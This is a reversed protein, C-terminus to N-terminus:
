VTPAQITEELYQGSELGVMVSPTLFDTVFGDVGFRRLEAFQAIENLNAGHVFLEKGSEHLTDVFWRNKKHSPTLVVAIDEKDAVFAAVEEFTDESAYLTFIISRFPYVSKITDYMEKNYFAPIVRDLLDPNMTNAIDVLSQYYAAVEEQTMDYAKTDPILYMDENILMTRYIDEIFASQFRNRVKHAAWTASDPAGDDYGAFAWDHNAALRGDSTQNFDVEFLRHGLDYNQVITDVNNIYTYLRYEEDRLAGGAHAVLKNAQNKWEHTNLDAPEAMVGSSQLSFNKNVVTTLFDPRIFYQNEHLVFCDPLDFTFRDKEVKGGDFDFRVSYGVDANLYSTTEEPVQEFGASVMADVLPVYGDQLLGVLMEDQKTAPSCGSMFGMMLAASLLWVTGKHRM